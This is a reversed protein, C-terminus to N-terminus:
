QKDVTETKVDNNTDNGEIVSNDDETIDEFDNSDDEDQMHTMVETM